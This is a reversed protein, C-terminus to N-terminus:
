AKKTIVDFTNDKNPRLQRLMLMDITITNLGTNKMSFDPFGM